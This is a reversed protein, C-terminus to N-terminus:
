TCTIALPFRVPALVLTVFPRQGLPSATAYEIQVCPLFDRTGCAPGNFGATSLTPEVALQVQPTCAPLSQDAGFPQPVVGEAFRLDDILCARACAFLSASNGWCYSAGNKLACALDGGLAM